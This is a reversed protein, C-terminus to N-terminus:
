WVSLPTSCCSTFSLFRFHTKPSQFQPTPPPQEWLSPSDRGAGCVEPPRRESGQPEEQSELSRQELRQEWHAERVRVRVRQKQECLGRPGM